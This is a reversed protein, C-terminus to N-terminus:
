NEPHSRTHDVPLQVSRAYAALREPTDFDVLEEPCALIRHVAPGLARLIARGGQDGEVAALAAFQSSDWVVPNGPKGDGRDPATAPPKLLAHDRLLANLLAASVLPMDGLCVLLASAQEVQAAQVGVRLSASLGEQANQALRVELRPTDPFASGLLSSLGPQDPPLIVMVRGANSALATATTRVLMPVGQADPAMLKHAPATRSSRGAALVLALSTGPAAPTVM